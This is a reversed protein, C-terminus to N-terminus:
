ANYVLEAGSAIGCTAMGVTIKTKSPSLSKMGKEKMKTLLSDMKAM